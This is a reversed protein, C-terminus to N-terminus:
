SISSHSSNLRTSKRDESCGLLWRLIRGHGLCAIFSGICIFLNLRPELAIQGVPVQFVTPNAAFIAGVTPLACQHDDIRYAVEGLRGPVMGIEGGGIGPNLNAQLVM